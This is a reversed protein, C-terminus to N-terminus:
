GFPIRAVAITARDTKQRSVLLRDAGSALLAAPEAVGWVGLLRHAVPSPNPEGQGPEAQDQSENVQNRGPDGEFVSNLREATFCEVPVGYKDALELIGAEDSKIDATAICRVSKLALANARFTGALLEELHERTVGRRCGMGVVLSRPRVVVM